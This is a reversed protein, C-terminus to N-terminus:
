DQPRKLEMIDVINAGDHEEWGAFPNYRYIDDSDGGTRIQLHYGKETEVVLTFVYKYYAVIETTNVIQGYLKTQESM